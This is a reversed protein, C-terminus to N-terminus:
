SSIPDPKGAPALPKNAWIGVVSPSLFTSERALAGDQLRTELTDIDVQAASAVHLVEMMPLVTRVTETLYRATRPAPAPEVVSRVFQSSSSLGAARFIRWVQPGLDLPVYSRQFTHRVWEVACEYIPVPPVSRATMMDMELFAAIGGPAVHRLMRQLAVVPEALYMLVFRGIVADFASQLGVHEVDAIVFDINAVGRADARAHAACIAAPSRDIGLVSGDRGVLSAALLALDGGGCGLDLVRMGPALGARQLLELSAEGWYQSQLELRQLENEVHGLSYQSAPRAYM